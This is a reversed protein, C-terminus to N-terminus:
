TVLAVREIGVEAPPGAAVQQRHASPGLPIGWRRAALVAPQTESREVWGVTKGTDLLQDIAARLADGM